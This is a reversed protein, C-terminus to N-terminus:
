LSARAVDLLDEKSPKRPHLLADGYYCNMVLEVLKPLGEETMGYTSMTVPKGGMIDTFLADIYGPLRKAKESVPMDKISDDFLEAIKAFKDEGNPLTWEIVRNICTAITGGHPADTIGGLAQAIAHPMTTLMHGISIGGYTSCLAMNGRAEIDSGNEVARKINNVFLRMGEYAVIEILPNDYSSVYAELCHAFADIGTLATVSKPMSATLEPDVLSLTPFCIDDVITAKYHLSPNNIVSFPTAETGTGSTTPIAILPLKGKEPEKCGAASRVYEWCEGGNKATIAVAKASDIASGGGIGIVIDCNESVCLRAATDIVTNRPNPSVDDFLVSEVGSNELDKVMSEILASGKLFPDLIIIAKKGFRAANEGLEKVKGAGFKVTTPIGLLSEFCNVM